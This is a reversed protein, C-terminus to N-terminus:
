LRQRLVSLEGVDISAPSQEDSTKSKKDHGRHQAARRFRKVLENPKTRKLAQTAAPQHGQGL